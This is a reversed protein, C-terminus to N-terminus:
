HFQRLFCVLTLTPMVFSFLCPSHAPQKLLFLLDLSRPRCAHTEIHPINVAGHDTSYMEGGDESGMDYMNYMARVVALLLM